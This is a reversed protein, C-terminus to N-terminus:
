ERAGDIGIVSPIETLHSFRHRDFWTLLFLLVV